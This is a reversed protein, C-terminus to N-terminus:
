PEHEEVWSYPIWVLAGHLEIRYFKHKIDRIIAIENHWVHSLNVFKVVTGIELVKSDHGDKPQQVIESCYYCYTSDDNIDNKCNKCQIM